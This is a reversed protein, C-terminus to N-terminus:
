EELRRLRAEIERGLAEDTALALAKGLSERAARTRGCEAQAVGLGQWLWPADPSSEPMERLGAEFQRIAAACDQRALLIRGLTDRVRHDDSDPAATALAARAAGEAEALRVGEALLLWALNAWADRYQPDVALATRYAAEARQAQGSERYVNGLNTWGVVHDPRAAVLREYGAAARELDGVQEAAVGRDFLLDASPSVLLLAHDTGSWSTALKEWPVWRARGDGFHVRGLGRDPDVGDVVVYHFLDRRLGPANVVRLMLIVPRGALVASTVEEPSGAALRADFGRERAALLLDVSLVGGNDAKPLAADLSAVDVWDGYYALVTSLSGAGCREVGFSQVPVDQLVVAHESPPRSRPTLSVCGLGVQVLVLLPM